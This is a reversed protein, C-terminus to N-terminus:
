NSIEELSVRVSVVCFYHKVLDRTDRLRTVSAWLNVMVAVNWPSLGHKLVLISGSEFSSIM